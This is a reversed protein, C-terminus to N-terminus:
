EGAGGDGAGGPGGDGAGGDGAGGDGAGGPGGDGAGGPGGDGAGGDGAGGPGGDGAGGPGGDGAGSLEGALNRRAAEQWLPRARPTSYLPELALLSRVVAARGTAFDADSLHAYDLRVATLYRRYEPASGGLVSLDADCLLGGDYDGPEPRHHATLRVLRAVAAVDRGALGAKMLASSALHASEEEDRLPVGDYVADHFWAALPVARPPASDLRDIAELVALLHTRGHYHRHPESWRALLAAGLPEEGPLIANWRYLLAARLSENRQRAPIRLGSGILLRVLAAGSVERAGLAVLQAYRRKPVDYHDRDFARDSIGAAAAMEHLETLSRDSVLHSFVTGHAPWSPPDIYIAM